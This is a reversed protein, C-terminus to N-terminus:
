FPTLFFTLDFGEDKQPPIFSDYQRNVESEPISKDDRTSQRTILTELPVSFILGIVLYGNDKANQIYFQRKAPILNTADLYIDKSSTLLDTFLSQARPYFSPDAVSAQYAQDYDNPNYWALRLTDFSFSLTEPIASAIQKYLTSKGSGSPGIPVFLIPKQPAIKHCCEILPLDAQIAPLNTAYASLILVFAILKRM